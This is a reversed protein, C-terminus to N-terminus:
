LKGAVIIILLSKMTMERNLMHVIRKLNELIVHWSSNFNITEVATLFDWIWKEDFNM